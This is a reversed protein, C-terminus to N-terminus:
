GGIRGNVVEHLASLHAAVPKIFDKDKWYGIHSFPTASQIPWGVDITHDSVM